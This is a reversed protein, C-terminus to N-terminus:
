PTANQQVQPVEIIDPLSQPFELFVSARTEDNLLSTLFAYFFINQLRKHCAPHSPSIINFHTLRMNCDAHPPRKTAGKRAMSLNRRNSGSRPQFIQAMRTSNKCVLQSQTNPQQPEALVWTCGDATLGDIPMRLGCHGM